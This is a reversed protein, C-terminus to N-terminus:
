TQERKDASVHRMARTAREVAQRVPDTNLRAYVETSKTDRHGLTRGIVLLSTGQAAMWSGLTRRIDHVHLDPMGAKTTIKTWARRVDTVHGTKTGPRRSPFVWPDCPPVGSSGGSMADPSRNEEDRHRLIDIAKETLPVVLPSGNKTFEGSVRWLAKGLDVDAWAMRMLSSKRVGTELLLNFYDRMKPSADELAVLFRQLEDADMFRERSREQNARTAKCPNTGHVLDHEIGWSFVGRVLALIRNAMVPGSTATLRNHLRTVLTPTIEDVRRKEWHKRVHRNYNWEDQQWSKKHVKAHEDMYQQFLDGLTAVLARDNSERVPDRGDAVAGSLQDVRQRALFVTTEPFPGIKVQANRGRVKRMFYFTKRTPTVFLFLYDKGRDRYIDRGHEPFPISEISAKTLNLTRTGM